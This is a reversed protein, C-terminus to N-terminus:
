RDDVSVEAGSHLLTSGTLQAQNPKASAPSFGLIDISSAEYCCWQAAIAAWWSRLGAVSGLKLLNSNYVGLTGVACVIPRGILGPCLPHHGHHLGHTADQRMRLLLDLNTSARCTDGFAAVWPAAASRSDGNKFPGTSQAPAQATPQPPLLPPLLLSAFVCSSPPASLLVTACATCYRSIEESVHPLLEGEDAFKQTTSNTSPSLLLQLQLQSSQQSCCNGDCSEDAIDDGVCLSGRVIGSALTAGSRCSCCCSASNLPLSLM